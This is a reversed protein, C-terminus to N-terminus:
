DLDPLRLARSTVKQTRREFLRRKCCLHTCSKPFFQDERLIVHVDPANRQSQELNTNLTQLSQQVRLLAMTSRLETEFLIPSSKNCTTPQQPVYKREIEM